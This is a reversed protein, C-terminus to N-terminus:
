VNTPPTTTAEIPTYRVDDMRRVSSKTTSRLNPPVSPVLVGREQAARVLQVADRTGNVYTKANCEDCLWVLALDYAFTRARVHGCVHVAASRTVM